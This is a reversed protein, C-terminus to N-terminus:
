LHQKETRASSGLGRLFTYGVFLLHCKTNKCRVVYLRKKLCLLVNAKGEAM